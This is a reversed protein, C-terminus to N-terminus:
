FISMLLMDRLYWNVIFDGALVAVVAALAIYPGFPIYDKRSKLKTIILIVGILGGFVFSFFLTVATLKLGLFIGCVACIEVDGWGMGKTLLIILTILGAGLLAGFIYQWPGAGFVLWEVLMFIVGAAFGSLTTMFYVDTTDLDIFAIVILFCILVTYKFFEYSPGFKIFTLAFLIGTMLEILAYRPSFKEGCHRCRGKLFIYSFVPILDLATLRTSCKGCRSPPKVVSLGAPIRYICVNFFSGFILGLIFVYILLLIDMM